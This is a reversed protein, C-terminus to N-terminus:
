HKLLKIILKFDEILIQISLSDGFFSGRKIIRIINPFNMLFVLYRNEILFLLARVKCLKIISKFKECFFITGENAYEFSMTLCISEISMASQNMMASKM